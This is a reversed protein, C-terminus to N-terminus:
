VQNPQYAPLGALRKIEAIPLDFCEHVAIIFMAGIQRKNHRMRSIDPPAFDIAKALRADNKLGFREILHDLLNNTSGENM